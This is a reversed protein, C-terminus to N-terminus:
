IRKRWAILKNEDCEIYNVLRIMFECKGRADHIERNIREISARM